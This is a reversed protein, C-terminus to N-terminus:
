PKLMPVGPKTGDAEALDPLAPPLETEIREVKPKPRFRSFLNGGQPYISQRQQACSCGQVPLALLIAALVLRKMPSM